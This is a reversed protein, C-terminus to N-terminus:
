TALQTDGPILQNHGVGRRSFCLRLAISCTARAARASATAWRSNRTCEESSMGPPLGVKLSEDSMSRKYSCRSISNSSREVQHRPTVSLSSCARNLIAASRHLGFEQVLPASEEVELRLPVL